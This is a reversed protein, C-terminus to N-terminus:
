IPHRRMFDALTRALAEPDQLPLMHNTGELLAVEAQPLLAKARETVQPRSPGQKRSDGGEVVLVPQTITSMSECQWQMVAPLEDRFFFQSERIAQAYGAQGLSREIVDRSEDGCVGRMFTEFARPGDGAAFSELAPGIARQGVEASAPVRFPGAGAPEILTLTHVLSPRDIAMQCAILAGSSHGVVHLPSIELLHALAALHGAHDQISLHAAPTYAGYGARRVRIVRQGDLASSVALPAFWDAFVGAHVLLLPAGSGGRDSYEIEAGPVPATKMAESQTWM